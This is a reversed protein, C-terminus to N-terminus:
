FQMFIDARWSWMIIRTLLDGMKVLRIILREWHISSLMNGIKGKKWQGHLQFYNKQEFCYNINDIMMWSTLVTLGISLPCAFCLWSIHSNLSQSILSDRSCPFLFHVSAKLILKFFTIWSNLLSVFWSNLASKLLCSIHWM